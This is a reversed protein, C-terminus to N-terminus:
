GRVTRANVNALMERQADWDSPVGTRILYDSTIHLPLKGSVTQEIIDPALFALDIVSRVRDTTVGSQSAIQAFSKGSKVADYWEMAKVINRILTQDIEPPASGLIIKTEVGRRRLQFPMSITLADLSLREIPLALHEVIATADLAVTLHGPAIDIREILNSWRRVAKQDIFMRALSGLKNRLRAVENAKLDEVLNPLIGQRAFYENAVQAIAQELQQAPLRWADPHKETKDIVLRRSIYYRLRKNATCQKM